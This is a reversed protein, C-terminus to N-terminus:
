SQLNPDPKAEVHQARLAYKNDKLHGCGALRCIDVLFRKLEGGGGWHKGPSSQVHQRGGETVTATNADPLM